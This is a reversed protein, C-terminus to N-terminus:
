SKMEVGLDGRAVMVADSAQLIADLDQVASPKEIKAVLRPQAGDCVRVLERLEEMDEHRQVFSLAIWDVHIKCAFRIDEQDKM